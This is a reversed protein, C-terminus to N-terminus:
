GEEGIIITERIELGYKGLSEFGTKQLLESWYPHSVEAGM